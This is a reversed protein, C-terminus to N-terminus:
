KKDLYSKMAEANRMGPYKETHGNVDRYILTPFANIEMEDNSNAEVKRIVIGRYDSGLAAFEPKMSECHPCGNMYYMTFSKEGLKLEPTMNMYYYAGAAILAILILRM